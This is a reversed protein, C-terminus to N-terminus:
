WRKSHMRARVFKMKPFFKTKKTQWVDGIGFPVVSNTSIERQSQFALFLDNNRTSITIPVSMNANISLIFSLHASHISTCWDLLAKPCRLSDWLLTLSYRVIYVTQLWLHWDINGVWSTHYILAYIIWLTDESPMYRSFWKYKHTRDTYLLRVVIVWTRDSCTICCIQRNSLKKM